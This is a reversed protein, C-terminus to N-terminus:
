FPELCGQPHNGTRLISRNPLVLGTDGYAPDASWASAPDALIRRHWRESEDAQPHSVFRIAPWVHMVENIGGIIVSLRDKRMQVSPHTRADVIHPERPASETPTLVTRALEGVAYQNARLGRESCGHGCRAGVTRRPPEAARVSDRRHPLREPQQGTSSPPHRQHPITASRKLLGRAGPKPAASRCM